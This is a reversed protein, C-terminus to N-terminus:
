NWYKFEEERRNILGNYIKGRVKNVEMFELKAGIKDNDNLKQLGKSNIFNAGGWNYVLSILADFQNQTLQVKVYKNVINEATVIDNRLLETALCKSIINYKEGHLMVHGYGITRKGAPCKYEIESFGEYKKIIDLGNNSIRMKVM